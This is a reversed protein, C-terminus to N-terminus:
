RLVGQALQPDTPFLVRTAVLGGAKSTELQVALAGSLSGLAGDPVTLQFRRGHASEKGNAARFSFLAEADRIGGFALGRDACQQLKRAYDPDSAFRVHYTPQGSHAPAVLESYSWQDRDPSLRRLADFSARTPEAAASLSGALALIGLGALWPGLWRRRRHTM